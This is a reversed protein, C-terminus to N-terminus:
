TKIRNMNINCLNKLLLRLWRINNAINNMSYLSLDATVPVANYRSVFKNLIDCNTWWERRQLSCWTPTRKWRSNYLSSKDIENKWCLRGGDPKFKQHSALVGAVHQKTLYYIVDLWRSSELNLLHCAAWPITDVKTIFFYKMFIQFHGEHSLSGM